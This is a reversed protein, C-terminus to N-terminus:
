GLTVGSDMGRGAGAGLERDQPSWSPLHMPLFSLPLLVPHPPSFSATLPSFVPRAPCPPPVACSSLSSLGSPRGQEPPSDPRPGAPRRPLPRPCPAPAELAWDGPERQVLSPLDSTTPVRARDGCRPGQGWPASPRAPGLPPQHTPAMPTLNAM